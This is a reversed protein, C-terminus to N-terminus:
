SAPGAPVVFLVAGAGALGAAALSQTAATFEPGPPASGGLAAAVAATADRYRLLEEALATGAAAARRNLLQEANARGVSEAAASTLGSVVVGVVLILAASLLAQRGLWAAPRAWWTRM